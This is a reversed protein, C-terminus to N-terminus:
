PGPASQSGYARSTDAPLNRLRQDLGSFRGLRSLARIAAGFPDDAVRFIAGVAIRPSWEGSTGPGPFQGAAM